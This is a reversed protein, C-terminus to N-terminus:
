TCKFRYTLYNGLKSIEFIGKKEKKGSKGEERWGDREEKEKVTFM